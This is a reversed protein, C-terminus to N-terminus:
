AQPLGVLLSLAGSSLDHERLFASIAELRQAKIGSFRPDSAMEEGSTADRLADLATADGAVGVIDPWRAALMALAAAEGITASQYGELQRRAGIIAYFKFLNVFRKVERANVVRYRTLEHSVVKNVDPHTLRFRRDFVETAARVVDEPPAVADARLRIAISSIEDLSTAKQLEEMLRPHSWPREAAAVAGVAGAKTAAREDGSEPGVLSPLYQERVKGAEPSPLQVPLQVLKDLFRWGPSPGEDIAFELGRLLRRYAVDISAVIARPEMAIVFLCNPFNGALFANVAEIVQAVVGPSCRDLDDIFVVLPRHPSAVLGLVAGVDSHVFQLFGARAAYAPEMITLLASDKGTELMMPDRWQVMGSFVDGAKEMRLRIYHILATAAGIGGGAALTYRILASGAGSLAFAAAVLLALILPIVAPVVRRLIVLYIAYRLAERGARKANLKLWFTERATLNMRETVQSIIENALGAWIQEGTQYMWPNFWVTVRRNDTILASLKTDTDRRRLVRRMKGVRLGDTRASAIGTIAIEAPKGEGPPDIAKRVMRMLSTKGAGWPARIGVTLPAKTDKHMLFDAIANAFVEYDLKDAETWIDSVLNTIPLLWSPLSANPLHRLVADVVRDDPALDTGYQGAREPLLPPEALQSMSKAMGPDFLADRGDPGGSWDRMVRGAFDLPSSAVFATVQSLGDYERRADDDPVGIYFLGDYGEIASVLGPEHTVLYVHVRDRATRSLWQGASFGAGNDAFFEKGGRPGALYIGRPAASPEEVDMLLKALGDRDDRDSLLVIFAWGREPRAGAPEVVSMLSSM